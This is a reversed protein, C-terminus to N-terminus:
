TTAAHQVMEDWSLWHETGSAILELTKEPGINVLADIISLYPIFEQPSGIQAYTKPVYNQFRVEIDQVPFVADELMYPFSGRACVYTKAGSWRLLDLVRQSRETQLPCQSSYCFERKIGLLRCALLIFDTNQSALSAAQAFFWQNLDPALEAFFPAKSYNQELRKWLKTRWPTSENIETQNLAAKFSNSKRVPVSYWDVQGRNVFLRNRQHYSQVSFQFDDLVIFRDSRYILEFFGQWPLFAPQMMAVVM